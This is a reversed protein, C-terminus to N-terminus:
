AILCVHCGPQGRKAERVALDLELALAHLLDEDGDDLAQLLRAWGGSWSRGCSGTSSGNGTPSAETCLLSDLNNTALGGHIVMASSGGTGPGIISSQSFLKLACSTGNTIGAVTWTAGQPLILTVPKQAHNGVDIEQSIVQAGYLGSADCKGGGNAIVQAICANVKVSADAGAFQDAFLYGGGALSSPNAPLTLSFLKGTVRAATISYTYNGAPAWWGFNGNSDATVVSGTIQQTLAQDTYIPAIPSCPTGTGASTCVTIIAGPIPARLNQM